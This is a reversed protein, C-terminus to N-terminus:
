QQPLHIINCENYYGRSSSCTFMLGWLVQNQCHCSMVCATLSGTNGDKIVLRQFGFCTPCNIKTSVSCGHLRITWKLYIQDCGAGMVRDPQGEACSVCAGYHWWRCHIQHATTYISYRVQSFKTPYFIPSNHAIRWFNGWWYKYTCRFHIQCIHVQKGFKEKGNVKVQITWWFKGWWFKGM